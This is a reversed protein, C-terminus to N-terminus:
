QSCENIEDLRQRASTDLLTLTKWYRGWRESWKTKIEFDPCEYRVCSTRRQEQSLRARTKRIVEGRWRYVLSDVQAAVDASEVSRILSLVWRLKATSVWQGQQLPRIISTNTFALVMGTGLRGLSENMHVQYCRYVERFAMRHSMTMDQAYALAMRELLCARARIVWLHERCSPVGRGPHRSRYYVLPWKPHITPNAILREAFEPCKELPLQPYACFIRQAMEPYVNMHNRIACLVAYEGLDINAEKASSVIDVVTESMHLLQLLRFVRATKLQILMSQEQAVRMMSIFPSETTRERGWKAFQFMVRARRFGSMDPEFCYQLVFRAKNCTNLHRLYKAVITLAPDNGMCKAWTKGLMREIRTKITNEHRFDILGSKALASWWVDLLKNMANRSRTPDTNAYILAECTSVVLSNAVNPPLSRITEIIWPIAELQQVEQKDQVQLTAQAQILKNISSKISIELRKAQLPQLAKIIRTGLEQSNLAFLSQSVSDWLLELIRPEVDELGLVTSSQLGDFLSGALSCKWEKHSPSRCNSSTLRAVNMIEEESLMGLSARRKVWQGLLDTDTQSLPQELLGNLLYILNGPTGCATDELAELLIALPPALRYLHRFALGGYSRLDVRYATAWTRLEDINKCLEMDGLLKPNAKVPELRLSEQSQKEIVPVSAPSLLRVIPSNEHLTSAHLLLKALDDKELVKMYTQIEALMMKQINIKGENDEPIRKDNKNSDFDTLWRMRSASETCANASQWGNSKSVDAGKTDKAVPPTPSMSSQFATTDKTDKGAPTTPSQWQWSMQGPGRGLGHLLSPDIDGGGGVQALNVMRRKAVRKRAELPGPALGVHRRSIRGRSFHSIASDLVDESIWVFDNPAKTHLPLRCVHRRLSM